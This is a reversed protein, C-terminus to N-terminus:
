SLTNNSINLLLIQADFDDMTGFESMIECYASVYYGNDDNPSQIKLKSM